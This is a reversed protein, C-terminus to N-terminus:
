FIARSLQQRYRDALESRVGVLEFIKVMSARAGDDRYARDRRIIELLQELAEEFRGAAAALNALGWRAELDEPDAALRARLAEANGAEAAARAFEIRAQLRQVRELTAVDGRGSEVLDAAPQVEGRELLLEALALTAAPHGPDQALVERLLREAGAHDDGALLEGAAQVQRDDASPVLADLFLGIQDPPLAGVFESVVQGDRVAKVAPISQIGFDQALLPNEDVNIKALVFAGGRQRAQEELIPGLYRCPGCWPAWFDIVVPVERSREMVEREFSSETVEVINRADM